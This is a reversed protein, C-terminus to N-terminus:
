TGNAENLNKLYEFIAANADESAAIHQAWATLRCAFQYMRPEGEETPVEGLCEFRIPLLDFVDKNRELPISVMKSITDNVLFVTFKSSTHAFSDVFDEYTEGRPVAIVEIDKHLHDLALDVIALMLDWEDVEKTNRLRRLGTLSARVTAAKIGMARLVSRATGVEEEYCPRKAMQKIIFDPIKPM